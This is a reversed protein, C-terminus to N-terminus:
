EGAELLEKTRQARHRFVKEIKEQAIGGGFLSGLGGLPLKYDIHDTLKTMNETVKEFTHTHIWHSFFGHVQRDVFKYPPLFEEVVTEMTTTIPGAKVFLGVMAGEVLREPAHYIQLRFDKPSIRLLNKLDLHFEFVKQINIEIYTVQEFIPM